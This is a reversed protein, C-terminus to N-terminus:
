WGTDTRIEAYGQLFGEGEGANGAEWEERLISFVLNDRDTGDYIHYGKRQRGEFKFGCKEIVRQSRINDPGTCIGLVVLGYTEFAYDIVAKCAETMYGKGWSEEALSYGVEMSNVDERRRDTELSISGVVKGTSKERIAWTKSAMFMNKIIDRSEERSGHPKWGANPGVNPNKAYAYLGDVDEDSLTWPSLVLRETEIAALTETREIREITEVNKEGNM